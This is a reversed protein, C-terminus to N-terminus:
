EYVEGAQKSVEEFVLFTTEALFFSLRETQSQLKTGYITFIIIIYLFLIEIVPNSIAPM